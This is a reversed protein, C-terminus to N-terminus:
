RIVPPSKPYIEIMNWDGKTLINFKKRSQWDDLNSRILELLKESEDWRRVEDELRSQDSTPYVWIEAMADNLLESTPPVPTMQGAPGIRIQLYESTRSLTVQDIGQKILSRIHENFSLGDNLQQVASNMANTVISSIKQEVIQTAQVNFSPLRRDAVRMGVRRVIRRGLRHHTPRLDCLETKLRNIQVRPVTAVLKEGDFDIGAEVSFAVL